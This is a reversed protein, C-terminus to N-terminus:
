GAQLAFGWHKMLVIERARGNLRLPMELSLLKGRSPLLGLVMNNKTYEINSKQQAV